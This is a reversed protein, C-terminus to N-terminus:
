LLNSKKTKFEEDTIEGKAYREKLIRLAESDAQEGSVTQAHRHHAPYRVMRIVVIVILAALLAGIVWLIWGGGFGVMPYAFHQGFFYRMM